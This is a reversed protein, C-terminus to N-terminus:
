ENKPGIECDILRDAPTKADDPAEHALLREDGVGFRPHGRLWWGGRHDYCDRSLDDMTFEEHVQRLRVLVWASM